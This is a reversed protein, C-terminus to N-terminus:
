STDRVSHLRATKKVRESEVLGFWQLSRNFRIFFSAFDNLSKRDKRTINEGSTGNNLDGGCYEEM